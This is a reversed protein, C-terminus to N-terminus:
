SVEPNRWELLLACNCSEEDPLYERLVQVPRLGARLQPTLVPDTLEGAIVREAYAEPTMTDAYRHYGPMRGAALFRRLGLRRVLDFRAQYLRRAIGQGRFAPRVAIDVGYLSDGAPDHTAITGNATVEAWTHQAHRPDFRIILNTCSAVLRGDLEACLQGEPFYRLHSELQAPTWLQEPPYPPPFCERQIEILQPIDARTYPRIVLAARDQAQADSTPIPDM